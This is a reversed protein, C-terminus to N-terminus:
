YLFGAIVAELGDARLRDVSQKASELSLWTLIETKGNSRQVHVCYTPIPAAPVSAFQPPNLWAEAEAPEVAQPIYGIGSFFQNLLEQRDEVSLCAFHGRALIISTADAITREAEWRWASQACAPCLPDALGFDGIVGAPPVPPHSRQDHSPVWEPIRRTANPAHASNSNSL